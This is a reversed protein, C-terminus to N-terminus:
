LPRSGGRRFSVVADVEEAVAAFVEEPPTGSAVLTAVRRLATQEDALRTLDGHSEANAVATALLETFSGLRAETDAPLPTDLTSGAAILGWLRGEVIIPTAVSSRIDAERAAVGLPGSASDAYRDIRAPRCTGFVTTALNKGGLAHRSGVPLHERPGGARAVSVLTGDSEYRGMIASDTGLLRVVGEAVAAFMEEQPMGRAVLTAVRRLAAQEEALRALWANSEANAVATALLETFDALQAETSAPLPEQGTSGAIM